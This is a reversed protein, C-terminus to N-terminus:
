IKFNMQEFSIHKPEHNGITDSYIHLPSGHHSVPSEFHHTELKLCSDTSKNVKRLNEDDPPYYFNYARDEIYKYKRQFFKVIKFFRRFMFKDVEM